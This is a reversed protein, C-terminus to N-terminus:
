RVTFLQKFLRQNEASAFDAFVDSFADKVRQKERTFTAILSGIALLTQRSEQDAAPLETAIHHLYDIQVSFDNFDGLNNQLQKLQKVLFDIEKTPFLSAFFEMSYRLKKCEIRLAHLAEDESDDLIIQGAKIIRRYRKYIRRRALGIIPRGANATESKKPLPENLFNEWDQLIREYKESNLGEVVVQLAEARQQHLYDFLPGIHDQLDPPLLSKYKNENLLYVDLDRLQNTLQGAYSFDRKFRKTIAPPFIGKIQSLASRTRRIAVRFDHLFETDIDQKIYPENRRIVDLLLRMIKKIAEDARMDPELDINLKSSYDGPTVKAHELLLFYPDDKPAPSFGLGTLDAALKKAEKRYGRVPKLWVYATLLESEEAEIPRIAEYVLRAITKEDQNLIRYTTSQLCGQALELLARMEIIPELQKKLHSDAFDRVFVPQTTMKGQQLADSEFLSRLRLEPGVRYLVLSKNFLRWDFTDYIIILESTFPEAKIPYLQSIHELLQQQNYLDPLRYKVNKKM